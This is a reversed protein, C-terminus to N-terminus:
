INNLFIATATVQRTIQQSALVYVALILLLSKNLVNEEAQTSKQMYMSKVNKFYRWYSCNLNIWLFDSRGFTEM